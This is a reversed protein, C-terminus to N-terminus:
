ILLIAIIIGGTVGMCRCLKKKDNMGRRMEQMTIQLQEQYNELQNMQMQIDAEGLYSGVETLRDKEQKPLYSGGLYDRVSERWIQSISGGKRAEMRCSMQDLWICYPEKSEMSLKLFIRSLVDRSYRMEGQLREILCYLYEMEQYSAELERAAYMGLLASAAVTLTGGVVKMM